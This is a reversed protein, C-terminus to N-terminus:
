AGIIQGIELYAFCGGSSVRLVPPAQIKEDRHVLKMRGAADQSDSAVAVSRLLIDISIVPM